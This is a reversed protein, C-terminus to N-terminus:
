HRPWRTSSTPLKVMFPLNRESLETEIHDEPMFSIDMDSWKMKRRAEIRQALSIEWELKKGQTKSAISMSGGFIMNIEWMQHENNPDVRHHKGRCPEQAVLAVPPPMKKHDVFTKCEELDHGIIRHIERLKEINAPRHFL